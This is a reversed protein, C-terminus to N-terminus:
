QICSHMHTCVHVYLLCCEYDGYDGHMCIYSHTKKMAGLEKYTARDNLPNYTHTCDHHNAIACTTGECM